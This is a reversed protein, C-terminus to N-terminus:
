GVWVSRGRSMEMNLGRDVAYKFSIDPEMSLDWPRVKILLLSKKGRNM